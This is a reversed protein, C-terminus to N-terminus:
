KLAAFGSNKFPFDTMNGRVSAANEKKNQSRAFRYLARAEHIILCKPLLVFNVL